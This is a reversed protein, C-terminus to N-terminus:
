FMHYSVCGHNSIKGYGIKIPVNCMVQLLCFMVQLLCVVYPSTSLIIKGFFDTNTHLYIPFNVVIIGFFDTNIHQCDRSKFVNFKNSIYQAKNGRM